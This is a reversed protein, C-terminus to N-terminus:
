SEKTAARVRSSRNFLLVLLSLLISSSTSCGMKPAPPTVGEWEDRTADIWARVADVRQDASLSHCDPGDSVVAVVVDNLFVPGGSDGTCTNATADGSWVFDDDLRAISHTVSRQTGWGDLPSEKAAGYGIHTIAAGVDSMSLSGLTAFPGELASGLRLLGADFPKGEGTYSPHTHQGTIKVRRSPARCDTGFNIFYSVGPGLPEVCHGATLVTHPGILVGSCLPLTDASVCITVGDNSASGGIIALSLLLAHAFM